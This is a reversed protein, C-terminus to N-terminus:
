DGGRNLCKDMCSVAAESIKTFIDADLAHLRNIVRAAFPKSLPGAEEGPNFQHISSYCAPCVLLFFSPCNQKSPIKKWSLQVDLV